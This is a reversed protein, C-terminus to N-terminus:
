AVLMHLLKIMCAVDWRLLRRMHADIRPASAFESFPWLDLLAVRM